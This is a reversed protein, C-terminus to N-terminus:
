GGWSLHSTLTGGCCTTLQHHAYGPMYAPSPAPRAGMQSNETCEYTPISIGVQALAHFVGAQQHFTYGIQEPKLCVSGKRSAMNAAQRASALHRSSTATMGRFSTCQPMLQATATVTNFWVRRLYCWKLEMLESYYRQLEAM